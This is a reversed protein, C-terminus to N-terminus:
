EDTEWETLREDKYTNCLVHLAGYMKLEDVPEVSSFEINEGAEDLVVGVISQIKGLKADEVMDELLAVLDEDVEIEPTTNCAVLNLTGGKDDNSM